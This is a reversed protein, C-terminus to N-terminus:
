KTLLKREEQSTILEEFHKWLQKKKMLSLMWIWKMEADMEEPEGGEIDVEINLVDAVASIVDMAIEERAGLDMDPAIAEEDGMDAVAEEDPMPLSEDEAEVEDAIDAMADEKVYDRKSRSEDGKNGGYPAEEEMYDRKSRSEDGKGGGYTENMPSISALKAFRRLQAESLLKKSM